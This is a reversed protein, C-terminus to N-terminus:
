EMGATCVILMWDVMVLHSYLVRLVWVWKGKEKAM